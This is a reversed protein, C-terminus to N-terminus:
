IMCALAEELAHINSLEHDPRIAFNENEPNIFVTTLKMAMAPQMDNIYDDGIMVISAHDCHNLAHSFLRTDPKAYGVEASIFIHEFYATLGAQHLKRRQMSASGNSIIMLQYDASLRELMANLVSDPKVFEPLSMHDEWLSETSYPLGSFRQLLEQCFLKRDKRGHCDLVMMEAHVQSMDEEALAAQNRSIFDLLYAHFAADRDLLTNDIDFLLSAKKTKLM